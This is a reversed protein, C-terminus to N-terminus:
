NLKAKEYREFDCSKCSLETNKDGCLPCFWTGDEHPIITIQPMIRGSTNVNRKALPTVVVGHARVGEITRTENVHERGIKGRSVFLRTGCHQCYRSGESNVFSCKGCKM